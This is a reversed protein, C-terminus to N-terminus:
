TAMGSREKRGCCRCTERLLPLTWAEGEVVVVRMMPNVDTPLDGRFLPYLADRSDYGVYPNLGYSREHRSNPVLVKGNPARQKFLAWSELRSPLIELETGTM